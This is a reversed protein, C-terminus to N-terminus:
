TMKLPFVIPINRSELGRKAATLALRAFASYEARGEWMDNLRRRIEREEDTLPARLRAQSIALTM